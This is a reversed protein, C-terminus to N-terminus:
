VLRTRHINTIGQRTLYGTQRYIIRGTNEPEKTKRVHFSETSPSQRHAQPTPDKSTDGSIYFTNINQLSSGGSSQITRPTFVTSNQDSGFQRFLISQSNRGSQGTHNRGSKRDKRFSLCLKTRARITLIGKPHLLHHYRPHLCSRPVENAPCFIACHFLGIRLLSVPSVIGQHPINGTRNIIVLRLVFPHGDCPLRM